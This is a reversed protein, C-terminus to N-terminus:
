ARLQGFLSGQAPLGREERCIAKGLVGRLIAGQRMTLATWSGAPRERFRPVLIGNGWALRAARDDPDLGFIWSARPWLRMLRMISWRSITRDGAKGV